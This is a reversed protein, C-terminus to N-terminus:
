RCRCERECECTGKCSSKCNCTAVHRDHDYARIAAASMVSASVRASM